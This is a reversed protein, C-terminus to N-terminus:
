GSCAHGFGGALQASPLTHRHGHNQAAPGRPIVAAPLVFAIARPTVRMM